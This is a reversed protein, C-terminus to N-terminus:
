RHAGKNQRALLRARIEVPDFRAEIESQLAGVEAQRKSLPLRRRGCHSHSLYHAIILYVDPLSVSPFQQVIDEATAGSQFAVVIVDLLVRTEAVRVRVNCRQEFLLTPLVVFRLCDSVCLELLQHLFDGPVEVGQSSLGGVILDDKSDTALLQPPM